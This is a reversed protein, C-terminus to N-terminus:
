GRRWCTVRLDEAVSSWTAAYTGRVEYGYEEGLLVLIQCVGLAFCSAMLCPPLIPCSYLETNLPKEHTRRTSKKTTTVLALPSHAPDCEVLACHVCQIRILMDLGNLCVSLHLRLLLHAPIICYQESSLTPDATSRPSPPPYRVISSISGM